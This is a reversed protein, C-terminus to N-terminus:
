IAEPTYPKNKLEALVQLVPKVTNDQCADIAANFRPLEIFFTAGQGLQSEAWMRGGLKDVVNKVIALGAGSGQYELVAELRSFLKLMRNFDHTDFGIGNDSVILQWVKALHQTRISVRPPSSKSSFKLANDVLNSVVQILGTEWTRETAFPIDVVVEAHQKAIALSRGELIAAVLSPVHVSSLIPTATDLQAFLLLDTILHDLNTNAIIIQSLCFAARNSLGRSHHSKLEQAYGGIGRLPAKLDHAVASSFIKLQQNRELLKTESLQLRENKDEVENYLALVGENTKTLENNLRTVENERANLSDLAVLLEKNHARQDELPSQSRLKTLTDALNKLLAPTINPSSMPLLIGLTVITGPGPSAPKIDFQDCLKKTSLIGQGLGSPSTYRSALIDSLNAIGPGHDSIEATFFSSLGAQAILFDVAGGQAYQFANRTMESVANGIRAQSLSDFGLAEAIVRAVRRAYLIDTDFQIDLHTISTNM